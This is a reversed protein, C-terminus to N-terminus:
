FSVLKKISLALDFQDALSATSFIFLIITAKYNLM